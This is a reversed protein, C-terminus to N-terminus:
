GSFLAATVEVAATNALPLAEMWRSMRDIDTLIHNFDNSPTLPGVLHIHIHAFRRQPVPIPKPRIPFHCPIKSRQCTACERAWTTVDKSLGPWVFRSSILRHTVLRGPHALGHLHQFVGRRHKLPVLLRWVGTSSDVALRHGQIVQFYIKLSSGGTILRQIEPCTAQKAAMDQFDIPDTEASTAAALEQLHSYYTEAVPSTKNPVQLFPSPPRSFADAM